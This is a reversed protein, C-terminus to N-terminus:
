ATILKLIKLTRSCVNMYLADKSVGFIVVVYLTTYRCTCKYWSVAIKAVKIIFIRM